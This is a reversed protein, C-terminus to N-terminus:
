QKIHKKWRSLLVEGLILIVAGAAILIMGTIMATSM